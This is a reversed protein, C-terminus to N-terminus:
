FLSNHTTLCIKKQKVPKGPSNYSHSSSAERARNESQAFEVEMEQPKKEQASVRGKRWRVQACRGEPAHAIGKERAATATAVLHQPNPCDHPLPSEQSGISFNSPTGKRISLTACMRCRHMIPTQFDSATFGRPLRAKRRFGRKGPQPVKEERKPVSRRSDNEQARFRGKTTRTVVKQWHNFLELPHLCKPAM